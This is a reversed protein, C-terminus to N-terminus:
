LRLGKSTRPMSSVAVSCVPCKVELTAPEKGEEAPLTATYTGKGGCVSCIDEYKAEKAKSGAETGFGGGSAGPLQNPDDMTLLAQRVEPIFKGITMWMNLQVASKIEGQTGQILKRIWASSDIGEAAIEQSMTKMLFERAGECALTLEAKHRAAAANRPDKGYFIQYARTFDFRALFLCELYRMHKFTLKPTVVGDKIRTSLEYFERRPRLFIPLTESRGVAGFSTTIFAKGRVRQVQTVTGAGDMVWQGTNTALKVYVPEIGAPLEEDQYFAVAHKIPANKTENFDFVKPRGQADTQIM